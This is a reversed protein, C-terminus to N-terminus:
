TDLSQKEMKLDLIEKLLKNESSSEMKNNLNDIIAGSINVIENGNETSLSVGTKEFGYLIRSVDLRDTDQAPQYAQIDDDTKAESLIHGDILTAIVEHLLRDSCSFYHNIQRYTMAPKGERFNRIVLFSLALALRKKTDICYNEDEDIYHYESVNQIAYCIQAGLLVILWSLQLWILFLPFAAFSGYIANFKAVGIGFYILGWEVLYFATGAIIGAILGSKLSVNTNPMILYTLAYLLWTVSYPLVWLLPFVVVKFPGFLEFTETLETIKQTIAITLSNAIILLVPALLAITLYDTIKRVLSRHKTVSWIDNFAAEINSLLKIVTFLLVALGIGAVLGGRTTELLNHAFEFGRSLVELQGSFADLIQKELQEILGFGKAIGFAVALVPVISLMTFFTLASARLQLKKDKFGTYSLVGVRASYYLTREFFGKESLDTTWLESRIFITQNKIWNKIKNM